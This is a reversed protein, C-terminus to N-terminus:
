RQGRDRRLRWLCSPAPRGQRRSFVGWLKALTVGWAARPTSTNRLYIPPFDDYTGAPRLLAGSLNPGVPVRKPILSIAGGSGNGYDALSAAAPDSFVSLVGTTGSEFGLAVNARVEEGGVGITVISDSVDFIGRLGHIPVTSQGGLNLARFGAKTVLEDPLDFHDSPLDRIIFGSLGNAYPVLPFGTM